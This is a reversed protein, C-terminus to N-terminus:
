MVGKCHCLCNKVLQSIVYPGQLIIGSLSVSKTIVRTGGLWDLGEDSINDSIAPSCIDELASDIRSADIMQFDFNPSKM